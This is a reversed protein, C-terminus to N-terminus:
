PQGDVRYMTIGSLLKTTFTPSEGALPCVREGPERMIRGVM